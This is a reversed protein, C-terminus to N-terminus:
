VVRLERAVDVHEVAHGFTGRTPRTGLAPELLDRLEVRVGLTGRMGRM